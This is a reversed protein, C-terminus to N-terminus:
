KTMGKSKVTLGSGRSTSVLYLLAVVILLASMMGYFKFVSVQPEDEIILDMIAFAIIFPVGVIFTFIINTRESM